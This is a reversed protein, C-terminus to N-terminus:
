SDVVQSKKSINYDLTLFKMGFLWMDHRAEIKGKPSDPDKWVTITENIPLRIAKQNLVLYVGQDGSKGESPWSTLVLTEDSGNRLNLISTMQSYPLPFAINMYRTRGSVHTSYLAAYITKKTQNYTRVWARVNQRGDKSDQIPLIVSKVQQEISEAELPFNMQELWQSGCKYVKAPYTFAKSWYPTVYLEFDDTKEYFDIIDQDFRELDLSQNQYDQMDDILGTPKEEPERDLVELKTFVDAGIRGTGQIRSFPIGATAQDMLTAHWALVGIFCFLVANGWGHFVIMTSISITSQGTLEGFGYLVALAMTLWIVGSSLLHFGKTWRTAKPIVCTFVLVSYLILSLAFTVVSLWELIPSYTMGLAILIPTIGGLVVTLGSFSKRELSDHLFGFLVPVVFGAYHFHNVTLLMILGEFGLLSSGFQYAALWIGGVSIYMFGIARSVDGFHPFSKVLLGVGMAAIVFTVLSWPIALAGAIPGPSLAFSVALSIAGIPILSILIKLFLVPTNKLSEFVRYLTLPVVVFAAFLIIREAQDYYPLFWFGLWLLLGTPVYSHIIQNLRNPM